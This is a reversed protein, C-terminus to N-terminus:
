EELIGDETFHLVTFRRKFAQVDKDKEFCDEISYNSTVIFNINPDVIASSNKVEAIFPYRDTWVKLKDVIYKGSEKDIDDMVVVKQGKYGDWWKNLQKPYIKSRKCYRASLSKGTGPPGYIWCNKDKLDGQYDQMEDVRIEAMRREAYHEHAAYMPTLKDVSCSKIEAVFDQWREKGTALSSLDGEEIVKEPHHSKIYDINQKTNGRCKAIHAGFTSKNTLRRTADYAVYIHAHENGKKNLGKRCLIYKCHENKLYGILESLKPLSKENIVIHFRRASISFNNKQPM